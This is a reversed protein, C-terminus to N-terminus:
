IHTPRAPIKYITSRILMYNMEKRTLRPPSITGYRKVFAFSEYFDICKDFIAYVNTLGQDIRDTIIVNNMNYITKIEPIVM